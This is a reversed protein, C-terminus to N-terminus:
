LSHGTILSFPFPLYINTPGDYAALIPLFIFFPFILKYRWPLDLMDDAFGLLITGIIVVLAALHLLELENKYYKIVLSVVSGVMLFSVAAAFGICEPIKKEGGESGKKNIDYGFIEAKLMFGVIKPILIQTLKWTIIGIGALFLGVKLNSLFLFILSAGLSLLLTLSYQNM